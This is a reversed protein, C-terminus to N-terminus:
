SGPLPVPPRATSVILKGDVVELDVVIEPPGYHYWGMDYVLYARRESTKTVFRVILGGESGRVAFSYVGGDALWIVQGASNFQFVQDQADHVDPTRIGSAPDTFLVISPPPPPEPPQTSTPTPSLSLRTPDPAPTCGISACALAVLIFVTRM